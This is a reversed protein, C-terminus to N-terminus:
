ASYIHPQPSSIRRQSFEPVFAKTAGARQQVPALAQRQKCEFRALAENLSLRLESKRKKEGGGENVV